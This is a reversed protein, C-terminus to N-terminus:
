VLSQIKDLFGLIDPSTLGYFNWKGERRFKVLSANELIGLHHSATPQSMDLAVMIECVCMDRTGLLLLIKLRSPDSLAKFIKSQQKLKKEDIKNTLDKLEKVYKTANRSPCLGSTVLRKVRMEDGSKEM